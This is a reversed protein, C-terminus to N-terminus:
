LATTILSIEAESSQHATAIINTKQVQFQKVSLFKPFEM